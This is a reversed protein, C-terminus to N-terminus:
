RDVNIVNSNQGDALVLLSFGGLVRAALGPNIAFLLRRLPKVLRERSEQDPRELQAPVLEEDLVRYGCDALTALATERTFAHIHGITYRSDVLASKRLVRQVSLDLPVIFVFHDARPRLRRLFGLHDEVHEFVDLVLMVDFHDDHLLPDDNVLTVRERRDASAMALADPSIEYGVLKTGPPLSRGLADLVGGTGCGVDCVAKPTIRHRALIGRVQDAKWGANAEYWDPDISLQTGDLYRARADDAEASSAM